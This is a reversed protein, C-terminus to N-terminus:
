LATGSIHNIILIFCFVSVAISWKIVKNVLELGRLDAKLLQIENYLVLNSIKM